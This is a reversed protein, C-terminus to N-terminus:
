AAAYLAIFPAHLARCLHAAGRWQRALRHLQLGQVTECCRVRALTTPLGGGRHPHRPWSWWRPLRSSRCGPRAKPGKPKKPPKTPWGGEPTPWEPLGYAIMWTWNGSDNKCRRHGCQKIWGKKELDTSRPSMTDRGVHCKVAIETTSQPILLRKLVGIYRMFLKSEDIKSAAMHSTGPDTGRVKGAM